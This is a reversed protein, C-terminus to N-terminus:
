ASAEVMQAAHWHVGQAPSVMSMDPRAELSIGLVSIDGPGIGCRLAHVPLGAAVESPSHWLPAGAHLAQIENKVVYALISRDHEALLLWNDARTAHARWAHNWAWELTPQLGMLQPHRKLATAPEAASLLIGLGQQIAQQLELPCAFALTHRQGSLYSCRVPWARSPEGFVEAFRHQALAQVQAISLPARGTHLLSVPMWKSDTLVTIRADSPIAQRLTALAQSLATHDAWGIHTSPTSALLALRSPGGSAQWAQFQSQGLRVFVHQPRVLHTLWDPRWM